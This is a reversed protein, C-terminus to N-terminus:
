QLPCPMFRSNPTRSKTAESNYFSGDGLITFPLHTPRRGARGPAAPPGCRKM